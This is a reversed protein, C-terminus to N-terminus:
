SHTATIAVSRARSADLGEEFLWKLIRWSANARARWPNGELEQLLAERFCSGRSQALRNMTEIRKKKRDFLERADAGHRGASAVTKEAMYELLGKDSEGDELLVALAPRQDRGARGFEQLYDEVCAPHQYNIVLRVDPIDLGMGFANTCIVANLEPEESGSFRGLISERERTPLKSHFFPLLVGQAAMAERLEDGIKVTPVFIM